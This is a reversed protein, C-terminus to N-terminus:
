NLKYNKWFNAREMESEFTAYDFNSNDEKMANKGQQISKQLEELDVKENDLKQDALIYVEGTHKVDIVGGQVLFKQVQSEIGGRELPLSPPTQVKIEGISLLSIIPEHKKLLTIVGSQTPLTVSVVEGEFLKEDPTLIKLKFSNQM